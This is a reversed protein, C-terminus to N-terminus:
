RRQSLPGAGRSFYWAALPFADEYDLSGGSGLDKYQALLREEPRELVFYRDPSNSFVQPAPM